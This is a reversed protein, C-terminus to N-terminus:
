TRSRRGAGHPVRDAGAGQDDVLIIRITMRGARGKAGAGATALDVEAAPGGGRCADPDLPLTASVRYGGAEAARGALTGGYVTVRERM